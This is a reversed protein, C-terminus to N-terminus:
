SGERRFHHAAAFLSPGYTVKILWPSGEVHVVRGGMRRVAEPLHPHVDSGGLVRRLQETSFGQPTQVERLGERDPTEELEGDRDRVVSAALPMVPCACAAGDLGARVRDVVESTVFPRAADHIVVYDSIVEALGHKVSGVREEAGEVFNLEGPGDYSIRRWDEMSPLVVTTRRVLPALAAISHDILPRGGLDLFQKPAEAGLRTGKGAALIIAETDDILESM